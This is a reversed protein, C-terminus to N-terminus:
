REEGFGGPLSSLGQVEVIKMRSTAGSVIQVKSSRIHLTKAILRVLAENAKGAEPAASVRAKLYRNGDAGQEWGALAGRGGRPTLRVAFRIADTM